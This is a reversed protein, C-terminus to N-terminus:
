GGESYGVEQALWGDPLPAVTLSLPRMRNLVRCLRDLSDDSFRFYGPCGVLKLKGRYRRRRSVRIARYGDAYLTLKYRRVHRGM